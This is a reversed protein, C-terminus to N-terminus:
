LDISKLGKRELALAIRHRHCKTPDLEVCMISIPYSLGKFDSSELIGKTLVNEDYWKFFSDYDGTEYLKRRIESPVGLEPYHVYKIDNQRLIKRLANKTFEPKYQSIPNKRADVLTEIKKSKLLTIFQDITKKEYGITYFDFDGLRELNWITKNFIQVDVTETQMEM